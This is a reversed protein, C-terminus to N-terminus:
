KIMNKSFHEFHQRVKSIFYLSGSIIILEHAPDIRGIEQRIAEKWDARYEKKPHQSLHYLHDAESARDFSFSTFVIKEFSKDLLPMVADLSKDKMMSFILNKKHNPYFRQLTQILSVVGERNHAGDIIVPPKSVLVEFRGPWKTRKLGERILAIDPKISNRSCVNLFTQLALVANQVQHHGKMQIMLEPFSHQESQFTFVEGEKHVHDNGIYTFAEGLQSIPANMSEAKEKIVKLAETQDVSSILPVNRKIIGAKEAAIQKYTDGLIHTHDLGINTIVTAIPQVINTSDLRGGLGTEWIVFDLSQDSFYSFAMATIVEFETPPGWQTKELDECLPKIKEVLKVMEKDTIPIGNVSIRENFKILYPSTFTGVSFHHAEFLNRLFSLTSGKGNTGAIHISNIHQEPHGLKEMLWEMRELGPRIGFKTRERIWEIAENYEM